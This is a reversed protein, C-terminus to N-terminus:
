AEAEEEIEVCTGSLISFGELERGSFEILLWMSSPLYIERTSLSISQLYLIVLSFIKCTGGDSCCTCGRLRSRSNLIVDINSLQDLRIIVQMLETSLM